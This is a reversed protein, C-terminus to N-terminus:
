QTWQLLPREFADPATGIEWTTTFDWGSFNSPSAFESTTLGQGEDSTTQGSTDLDWYSNSIEPDTCTTYTDTTCNETEAILGGTSAGGDAEVHGASYTEAIVPSTCNTAFWNSAWDTSTNCGEVVAILGGVFEDGNVDGTAYSDRIEPSFCEGDDTFTQNRHQSCGEVGAVLGGASASSDVDGSAYSSHIHGSSCDDEDESACAEIRGVLGGVGDTGAVDVDATSETILGDKTTLGVLGGVTDEGTVSGEVDVGTISGENIGVLGGVEDSGTVELSSVVLDTIVAQVGLNAFVGAGSGADDISPNTLM